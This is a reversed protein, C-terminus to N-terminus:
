HHTMTITNIHHNCYSDITRELMLGSSVLMALLLGAYLTMQDTMTLILEALTMTQDDHDDDILM